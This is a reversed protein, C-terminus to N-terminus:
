KKTAEREEREKILTVIVAAFLMERSTSGVKMVHEAQAKVEDLDVTWKLPLAKDSVSGGGM